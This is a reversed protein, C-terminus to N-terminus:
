VLGDYDLATFQINRSGRYKASDLPIASARANVLRMQQTRGIAWNHNRHYVGLLVKVFQKRSQILHYIFSQDRHGLHLYDAVPALRLRKVFTASPLFRSRLILHASSM